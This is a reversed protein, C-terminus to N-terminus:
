AEGEMQLETALIKKAQMGLRMERVMRSVEAKDSKGGYRAESDAYRNIEQLVMEPTIKGMLERVMETRREIPQWMFVEPDAMYADPLDFDMLRTKVADMINKIARGTFRPEFQQIRHMYVSLKHLDTLPGIEDVTRDFINAIAEEQPRSHKDYSKKAAEKIAQTLFLQGEAEGLGILKCNDKGLLLATLDRYDELTQPGDILFRAGARQRLADDVLEPYNSFMGYTCNGRVVTNAGAFASMLVATVEQQGASSGRDGRKGAVQDIDDITGFGICSDDQVYDIFAKANQGSKGQFESIEDVGFNRYRFPYGAVQCYDNVLGCIMQILTTKGTGPNGDGMFTYVFGGIEAFPSRKDKPSYAMLMRALRMSQQKAIHNGVVEEPKRFSMVLTQSRTKSPVAFGKIVFEEGELRYSYDTFADLHKAGLARTALAACLKACYDRVVAVLSADDKGFAKVNVGIEYVLASIASLPMDFRLEVPDKAEVGTSADAMYDTLSWAVYSAATFAAILASSYQMEVFTVRQAESLRGVGSQQRLKDLETVSGYIDVVARGVAIGTRLVRLVHNQAESYLPDDPTVASVISTLDTVEAASSAAVQAAIASSGGVVIQQRPQFGGTNAPAAPKAPGSVPSHKATRLINWADAEHKKVESTKIEMLKDANM